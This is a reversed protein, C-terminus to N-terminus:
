VDYLRAIKYYDQAYRQHLIRSYSVLLCSHPYDSSKDDYRDHSTSALFMVIRSYSFRFIFYSDFATFKSFLYILDYKGLLAFRFDLEQAYNFLYLLDSIWNKHMILNLLSFRFDLERFLYFTLIFRSFM